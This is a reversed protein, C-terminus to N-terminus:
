GIGDFVEFPYSGQPGVQEFLFQVNEREAVQEIM